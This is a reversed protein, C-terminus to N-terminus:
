TLIPRFLVPSSHSAPSPDASMPVNACECMRVPGQDEGPSQIGRYGGYGRALPGRVGGFTLVSRERGRGGIWSAGEERERETPPLPDPHPDM